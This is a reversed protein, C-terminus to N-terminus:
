DHSELYRQLHDVIIRSPFTGEEDARRRKLEPLVKMFEEYRERSFGALMANEGLGEMRETKARMILCPVDLSYCEEQISGGDTVTFDSGSLLDLFKLYPQLPMLDVGDNRRLRDLLDFRELQRRTPEHLVFLVRRRRSIEELLNIVMNMRSTSYITEVRHITAVIYSHCHRDTESRRSHAIRIADVITNGGVHISKNRYGMRTLNEMAWDSPAFLIDSYRMALLRILEEPFPDLIQHSRLGAEVHAVAIGCRKAYLLSFLTSLTDGHILCIGKRENRFIDRAIREPSSLLRLLTELTWLAAQSPTAINTSERRLRTDAEKLGFEVILDAALAAHQGTEILHYPMGRRNMEMMVPATKIFQAKTGIFIHIMRHSRPKEPARGGTRRDRRPSAATM